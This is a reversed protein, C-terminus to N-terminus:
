ILDMYQEVINNWSFSESMTRASKSMSVLLDPNEIVKTLAAQIEKPNKRDVMFGFDETVFEPYPPCDSVLVPLGCAMAEIPALAFAEGKSLLAFVDYKPLIEPINNM